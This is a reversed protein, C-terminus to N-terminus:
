RERGPERAAARRGHAHDHREDVSPEEGFHDVRDFTGQASRSEVQQEVVEAVLGAARPEELDHRHAFAHVAHQDGTEHEGVVLERRELCEACRDAQEAEGTRTQQGGADVVHLARASGDFVQERQPM